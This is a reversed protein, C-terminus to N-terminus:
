KAGELIKRPPPLFIRPPSAFFVKERKAQFKGEGGYINKQAAGAHLQYM